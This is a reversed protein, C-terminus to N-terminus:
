EYSIRWLKETCFPDFQNIFSMVLFLRKAEFFNFYCNSLYRQFAPLFGIFTSRKISAIAPSSCLLDSSFSAYRLAKLTPANTANVTKTIHRKILKTKNGFVNLKSTPDNCKVVIMLNNKEANIENTNPAKIPECDNFKKVFRRLIVRGSDIAGRISAFCLYNMM